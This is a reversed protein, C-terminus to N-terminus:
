SPSSGGTTARQRQDSWQRLEEAGVNEVAALLTQRAEEDRASDPLLQYRNIARRLGERSQAALVYRPGHGFVQRFGTFFLAGGAILATLWAPAGLGAAVVTCSSTTLAGLESLRYWRRASDRVQEYFALDGLALALLPDPASTWRETERSPAPAQTPTPTPTLPQRRRM